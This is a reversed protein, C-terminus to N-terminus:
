LIKELFIYKTTRIKKNDRETRFDTLLINYKLKAINRIISLYPRKIIETNRIGHISDIRFYKKIEPILDMIEKKKDENNDLDYLTIGNDKDLSLIYILKDVIYSQQEKYLDSKNRM